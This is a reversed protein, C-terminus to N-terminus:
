PVLEQAARHERMHDVRLPAEIVEDAVVVELPRVLREIAQDGGIAEELRCRVHAGLDLARDRRVLQPERELLWRALREVDDPLEAILSQRDGGAVLSQLHVDAVGRM